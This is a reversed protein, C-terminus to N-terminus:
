AASRGSAKRGLSQRVREALQEPQLRYHDLLADQSGYHEPYADPLAARHIAPLAGPAQEVLTEVVAAGLGGVMSHEEVTVLLDVSGAHKVLALEDLPKLTHMNLVGATIGDKALLEAAVLCRHVMVGTAVFLVEGPEDLLIAEGFEFGDRDRSVIPDGGKAVRVYLPGDLDRSRGIARRMEDADTPAIVTMNPLARMIAIDETAIHTPGLPAYVLGGGNGILTVPLNQLCLDIAVQEFCRRTLFTAITNVYPRLGDMALGAAVGILNQEAIGEMFFRDPLEDRFADLTGAGLDSGLFVVRPDDRALDHVTNLATKRM